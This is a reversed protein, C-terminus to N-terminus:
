YTHAVKADRSITPFDRSIGIINCVMKEVAGTLPTVIGQTAPPNPRSTAFVNMNQAAADHQVELFEIYAKAFDKLYINQLKKLTLNELGIPQL